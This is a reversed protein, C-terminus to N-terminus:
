NFASTDFFEIRLETPSDGSSLGTNYQNRVLVALYADAGASIPHAFSFDVWRDWDLDNNLPVPLGRVASCAASNAPSELYIAYTANDSSLRGNITVSTPVRGGPLVSPVPFQTVYVYWGASINTEGAYPTIRESAPSASNPLWDINPTDVWAPVFTKLACPGHDPSLTSPYPYALAWNGDRTPGGGYPNPTVLVGSCGASTAPTQGTNCLGAIQAAAMTAFLLMAAVAHLVTKSQIRLFFMTESM